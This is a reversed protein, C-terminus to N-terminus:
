KKGIVEEAYDSWLSQEMRVQVDRKENIEKVRLLNEIYDHQEEIVRIAEKILDDIKINYFNYDLPDTTTAMRLNELLEAYIM